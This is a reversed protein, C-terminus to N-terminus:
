VKAKKGVADQEHVEGKRKTNKILELVHVQEKTFFDDINKGDIVMLIQTLDDKPTKCSRSPPSRTPESPLTVEAPYSLLMSLYRGNVCYESLNALHDKIKKAHVTELASLLEEGQLKVVLKVQVFVPYMDQGVRLVFVIDPGSPTLSPFYFPAVPLGNRMSNHSFHADLFEQMEMNEHDTGHFLNDWGVISTECELLEKPVLTPNAFLSAQLIKKDFVPILCSPVRREWYLGQFSPNSMTTWQIYVEKSFEPDYHEFYNKAALFSFPEDITTVVCGSQKGSCSSSGASMGADVMRICSMRAFATEVLIPEESPIVMPQGVLLMRLVAEKLMRRVESYEKYRDSRTSIRELVRNLEFCLNGNMKPKPKGPEVPYYNTLEGLTKDVAEEWRSPISNAEIINEIVTIIPRFRGRLKRYMSEIAEPPIMARLKNRGGDPMCQGVHDVYSQVESMSTWGPFNIVRHEMAVNEYKTAGGSNEMWDLDYSSLGTGSPVICFETQTESISRLGYLVPSLLPRSERSNQQQSTFRDYFVNGLTQAEDLGILFKNRTYVPQGRSFLLDKIRKFADQVLTRLDERPINHTHYRSALKEFLSQFIDVTSDSKFIDVMLDGFIGPCVQLLTWRECTFTGEISPFQLCHQLILLRSLLLCMTLAEANTNNIEPNGTSYRMNDKVFNSLTWMDDSGRDDSSANLYLGWNKSLMEIVTRTKGCGTAGFLPMLTVARSHIKKLAEESPHYQTNDITKAPHLLLLAPKTTAKSDGKKHWARPLGPLLGETTPLLLKGSAFSQLFIDAPSGDSFFTTTIEDILAQPSPSVPRSIPSAPRPLYFPKKSADQSPLEVICHITKKPPATGFVESIDSTARLKKRNTQDVLTIPNEEDDGEIPINVSWLTLDSARLDDFVPSQDKKIEKKLHDVTKTSAIDISFATSDGDVICFLTIESTM